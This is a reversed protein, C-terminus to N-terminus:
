APYRNQYNGLKTITNQYNSIGGFTPVILVKQASIVVGNEM